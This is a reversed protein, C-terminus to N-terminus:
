GRLWHRPRLWAWRSAEEHLLGIRLPPAIAIRRLVEATNLITFSGLNADDEILHASAWPSACFDRLASM